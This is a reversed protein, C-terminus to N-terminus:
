ANPPRFRSFPGEAIEAELRTLAAESLLTQRPGALGMVRAGSPKAIGEVEV